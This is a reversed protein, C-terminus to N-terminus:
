SSGETFNLGIVALELLLIILGIVTLLKKNNRTTVMDQTEKVVKHEETIETTEKVVKVEYDLGILHYGEKIVKVSNIHQSEM